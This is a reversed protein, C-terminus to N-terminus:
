VGRSENRASSTVEWTHSLSTHFMLEPDRYVADM